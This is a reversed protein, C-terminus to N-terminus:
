ELEEQWNSVGGCARVCAGEFPQLGLFWMEGEERDELVERGLGDRGWLRCGRPPKKLTLQKM